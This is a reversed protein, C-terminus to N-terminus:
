THESSFILRSFSQCIKTIMQGIQWFKEVSFNGRYWLEVTNAHHSTNCMNTEKVITFVVGNNFSRLLCMIGCYAASQFTIPFNSPRGLPTSFQISVSYGVLVLNPQLWINSIHSPISLVADQPLSKVTM